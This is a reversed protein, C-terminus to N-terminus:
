PRAFPAARDAWADLVSSLAAARGSPGADGAGQSLLTSRVDDVAARAAAPPLQAMWGCAQELLAALAPPPIQALAGLGLVTLPEETTATSAATTTTASTVHM